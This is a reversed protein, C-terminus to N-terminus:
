ESWQAFDGTVKSSPTVKVIDGCLQNAWIYAQKVAVWQSGLGLSQAQFMLNTYQGGPMEHQFVSSDSSKVNADFPAYLLRLQTWYLNLAQISEYSIGTGMETQELAGVVAGMAPQSTMGSMSDIACDVVDAGAAACALM